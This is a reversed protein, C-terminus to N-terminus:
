IDVGSVELTLRTVADKLDPEHPHIALAQQYATLAREPYGAEEMIAGLGIMAGFHRPNLSLVQAIDALAPGFLGQQFYATARSNYGEAFEPAHDVLATFHVVAMAFDEKEMARRGRQLLLDASASGSKAWEAWIEDEVIQWNPLDPNRLQEFLDDLRLSDEAAAPGNLVPLAFIAAVVYNLFTNRIGM